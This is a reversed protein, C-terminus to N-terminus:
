EELPEEAEKPRKGMVMTLAIEKREVLVLSRGFSLLRDYSRELFRSMTSMVM